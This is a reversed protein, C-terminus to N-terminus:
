FSVVHLNDGVKKFQFRKRKSILQSPTHKLYESDKQRRNSALTLAVPQMDNLYIPCKMHTVSGQTHTYAATDDIVM